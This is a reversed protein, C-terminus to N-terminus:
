RDWAARIHRQYALGDGGQWHTGAEDALRHRTKTLEEQDTEREAGGEALYKDLWESLAKAQDPSLKMIAAEIEQLSMFVHQEKGLFVIEENLGGKWFPEM